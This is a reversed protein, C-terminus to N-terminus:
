ELLANLAPSLGQRVRIPVALELARQPDSQILATLESQRKRALEIGEIELGAKDPGPPAQLYREAWDHFRAFAEEKIPENWTVEASRFLENTLAVAALGYAVGVHQPKRTSLADGNSATSTPGTAKRRTATTAGTAGGPPTNASDPKQPRFLCVSLLLASLAF